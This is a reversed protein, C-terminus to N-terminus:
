YNVALCEYDYIKWIVHTCDTVHTDYSKYVGVGM